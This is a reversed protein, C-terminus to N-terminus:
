SVKVMLRTLWMRGTTVEVRIDSQSPHLYKAALLPKDYEGGAAKGSFFVTHMGSEAGDILEFSGDLKNEGMASNRGNDFVIGGEDAACPLRM